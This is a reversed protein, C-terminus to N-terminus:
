EGAYNKSLPVDPDLDNLLEIIKHLENDFQQVRMSSHWKDKIKLFKIPQTISGNRAYVKIMYEQDIKYKPLQVRYIPMINQGVTIIPFHHKILISQQQAEFINGFFDNEKQFNVWEEESNFKKNFGMKEYLIKRKSMDYIVFDVDYLPFSGKHNLGFSFINDEKHGVEFYTKIYCYSDGGSVYNKLTENMKANKKALSTVEESLEINKNALEEIKTTKSSIVSSSRDNIIQQGCITFITGIAILIIGIWTLIHISFIMM